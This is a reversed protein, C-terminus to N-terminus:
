TGSSAARPRAPMSAARAAREPKQSSQRRGNLPGPDVGLDAALSTVLLERLRELSMGPAELLVQLALGDFLAVTRDVIEEVPRAPRFAGTAVGEEIVLRFPARWREYVEVM